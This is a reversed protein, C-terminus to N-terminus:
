KFAPGRMWAVASYRTGSTVPAVKHRLMSSFVIISGQKKPVIIEKDSGPQFLLDGGEYDNEDSLQVSCSLKRQFNEACPPDM